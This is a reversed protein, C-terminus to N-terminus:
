GKPPYPDHGYTWETRFKNDEGQILVQADGGNQGTKHAADVAAKIAAKQTDYPGAHKGSYSIKWEGNLLVVIYQTRAM